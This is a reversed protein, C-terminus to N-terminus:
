GRWFPKDAEAAATARDCGIDSLLRNDLQGLARRQRSRELWLLLRDFGRVVLSPCEPASISDIWDTSKM